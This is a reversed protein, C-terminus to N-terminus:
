DFRQIRVSVCQLRLSRVPNKDPLETLDTLLVSRALINKSEQLRVADRIETLPFCSDEVPRLSMTDLADIMEKQQDTSGVTIGHVTQQRGMLAATPIQGQIGTLMGVLVIDGGIRTAKMSELL